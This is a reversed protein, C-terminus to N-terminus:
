TIRTLCAMFFGDMESQGPLVQFFGEESLFDGMKGCFLQGLHVLSFNPHSKLFNNVVGLTEEPEFSCVSYALRGDPKVNQCVNGLIEEQVKGLRQLEPEEKLWKIEPHRRLVGFASCPADILVLDAAIKPSIPQRADQCVMKVCNFGLRRVNEKLLRLRKFNGDMALVIGKDGMLQAMHSTKGGPAACVDLVNIGPEPRILQSVLMSAEDQIVCLGSELFQGLELVSVELKLGHEAMECPSAKIGKEELRLLFDKVVIKKTNVRVTLPPIQNNAELISKTGEIGFRKVWRRVLWEPHSYWRSIFEVNNSLQTPTNVAGKMTEIKRLIGNVLSSTGKHGFRHALKVSESVAAWSPIKTLFLLQYAGLRLINRIWPTLKSLPYQSFNELIWDLRGRWRLVGYALQFALSRDKQSLATKNFIEDLAEDAKVKKSEVLILLRLAVERSTIM